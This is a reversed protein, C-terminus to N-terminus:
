VHPVDQAGRVFEENNKIINLWFFFGVSVFTTYTHLYLLNVNVTKGLTGKERRLLLYIGRLHLIFVPAKQEPGAWRYMDM